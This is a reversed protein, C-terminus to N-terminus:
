GKSRLMGLVLYVGKRAVYLAALVAGIALLALIVNGFNAAAALDSYDPQNARAMSSMLWLYVGLVFTSFLKFM